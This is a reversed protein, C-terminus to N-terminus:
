ANKSIYSGVGLVLMAVIGIGAVSAIIAEIQETSLENSKIDGSTEKIKAQQQEYLITDLTKNGPIVYNGSLDKLQNFPVCKYQTTKYYPCQDSNYKSSVSAPLRPPLTFYEFRNNFEDSCSSIPTSYIIGDQSTITPVKNGDDDFKYSRLTSDGGRISVPIMYPPLNGNLQILLQQFGAQTLHIGNPFVVVYLSKSSPQNNRDITEFCTKYAISTQTTDDDWGYFISQLTPVGSKKDNLKNVGHKGNCKPV